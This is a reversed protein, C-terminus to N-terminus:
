LLLHQAEEVHNDLVMFLLASALEVETVHGQAVLSNMDDALDDLVVGLKCLKIEALVAEGISPQLLEGFYHLTVVLSQDMEAKTAVVDLGLASDLKEPGDDGMWRQGRKIQSVVIAVLVLDLDSAFTSLLQAVQESM